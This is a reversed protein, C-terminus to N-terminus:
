NSWRFRFTFGKEGVSRRRKYAAKADAVIRHIEPEFEEESMPSNDLGERKYVMPIAVLDASKAVFRVEQEYSWQSRVLALIGRFGDYHTFYSEYDIYQVECISPSADKPRGHVHTLSEIVGVCTSRIAVGYPDGGFMDWMDRDDEAMTWCSVECLQAMHVIGQLISEHPSTLYRQRFREAEEADLGMRQIVTEVYELPRESISPM